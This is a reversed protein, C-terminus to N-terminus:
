ENLGLEGANLIPKLGMSIEFTPILLLVLFYIISCKISMSLLTKLLDQFWGLLKDQKEHIVPTYRVTITGESIPETFDIGIRFAPAGERLHEVPVLEDIIKISAGEGSIEAKLKQNETTLIITNADIIEYKALTM